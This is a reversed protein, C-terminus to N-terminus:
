KPNASARTGRRGRPKATATKTTATATKRGRRGSTGKPEEAAATKTKSGRRGSTAKATSKASAGNSGNGRRGRGVYFDSGVGAKEALDRVEGVTLGSRAAIREFRLGANRAAKVGAETPKVKWEPYAVPEADYVDSVFSGNLDEGLAKAVAPVSKVVNDNSGGPGIKKIAAAIEKQSAM